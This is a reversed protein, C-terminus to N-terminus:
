VGYSAYQNIYEQSILNTLYKKDNVTATISLEYLKRSVNAQVDQKFKPESEPALIHPNLDVYGDITCKLQYLNECLVMDEKSILPVTRKTNEEQIADVFIHFVWSCDKNNELVSVISAGMIHIYADNVNYCIHYVPRTDDQLVYNYVTKSIIFHTTDFFSSDFQKM